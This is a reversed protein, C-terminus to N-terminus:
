DDDEDDYYYHKKHKKYHKHKYVKKYSPKHYKVRHTKFHTYPRHGHYDIAVRYGRNVDYDRCYRPLYRSRVWNNSEYYIYVSSHTDYYAEIEPYYYYEVEEYHNHVEPHSNVNISIAVKQANSQLSFLIVFTAAFIKFSKRLSGLNNKFTYKM